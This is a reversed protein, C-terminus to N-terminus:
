IVATFSGSSAARIAGNAPTMPAPLIGQSLVFQLLLFSSTFSSVESAAESSLSEHTSVTMKVRIEM